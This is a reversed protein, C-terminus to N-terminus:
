IVWKARTKKLNHIMMNCPMEVPGIWWLDTKDEMTNWKYTFNWEWNNRLWKNPQQSISQSCIIKNLIVAHRTIETNNSHYSAYLNEYNELVRFGMNKNRWYWNCPCRTNGMEIWSSIEGTGIKNIEFGPSVLSATINQEQKGKTLRRNNHYCSQSTHSRAAPSSKMPKQKHKVKLSCSIFPSASWHHSDFLDEPSNDLFSLLIVVTYHQIQKLFYLFIKVNIYYWAQSQSNLLNPAM